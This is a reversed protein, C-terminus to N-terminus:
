AQRRARRPGRLGEEDPELHGRQRYTILELFRPGGDARMAAVTELASAHVAEADNGDLTRTPLGHSSAWRAIAGDPMTERRHVYAQWHNDECVLLIPLAWQVALNVQAPRIRFRGRVQGGHRLRCRSRRLTQCRRKPTPVHRSDVERDTLPVTFTSPLASAAGGWPRSQSLCCVSSRLPVAPLM